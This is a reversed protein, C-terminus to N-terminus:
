FSGFHTHSGIVYYSNTNHKNIAFSYVDFGTTAADDGSDRGGGQVPNLNNVWQVTTSSGDIQFGTQYYSSGGVGTIYSVNLTEGTNMKSDLTTSSNWRINYTWNGSAAGNWYRSNDAEVSHHSTGSLGSGTIQCDEFILGANFSIGGFQQIDLTRGPSATGIGLRDNTSDVFITDANVSVNGNSNFDIAPQPNAALTPSIVKNVNIQSM